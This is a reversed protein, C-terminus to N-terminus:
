LVHWEMVDSWTQVKILPDTELPNEKVYCAVSYVESRSNHHGFHPAIQYKSIGEGLAVTNLTSHGGLM